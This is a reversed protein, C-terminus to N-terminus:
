AKLNNSTIYFALEDILIQDSASFSPEGKLIIIGKSDKAVAQRKVITGVETKPVSQVSMTFGNVDTLVPNGDEIEQAGIALLENDIEEQTFDIGAEQSCQDIKNDAIKLLDLAAKLYFRLLILATLIIKPIKSFLKFKGKFKDYKEDFRILQGVRFSYIVGGSPGPPTGITSPVPFRGFLRMILQFIKLLTTVIGIAAIAATIVKYLNNLQKVVKNRKNIQRRLEAKTPCKTPTNELTNKGDLWKKINTIGFAVLMGIIFPLLRESIAKVANLITKQPTPTSPEANSLAKATNDDITGAEAIDKEKQKKNKTLKVINIKRKVKNEGTIPITKFPSFGDKDIILEISRFRETVKFNGDVEIEVPLSYIGKNDTYTNFKDYSVKVKKLPKNNGQQVVRGKITYSQMKIIESKDQKYFKGDDGLYGQQRANGLVIEKAFFINYNESFLIEKVFIDEDTYLDVRVAGNPKTYAFVKFDKVLITEM